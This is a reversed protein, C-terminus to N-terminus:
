RPLRQRRQMGGPLHDLHWPEATPLLGEKSPTALLTLAGDAGAREWLRAWGQTGVEGLDKCCPAVPVGTGRCWLASLLPHTCPGGM